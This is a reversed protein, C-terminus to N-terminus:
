RPVRAALVVGPTGARSRLVAPTARADAARHVIQYSTAEMPGKSGAGPPM